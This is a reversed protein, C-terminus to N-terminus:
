KLSKLIKTKVMKNYSEDKKGRATAIKDTWKKFCKNCVVIKKRIATANYWGSRESDNFNIKIYGDEGNVRSSCIKCKIRESTTQKFLIDLDIGAM